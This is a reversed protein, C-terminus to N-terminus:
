PLGRQVQNRIEKIKKLVAKRDADGEHDLYSGCRKCHDKYFSLDAEAREQILEREKQLRPSAYCITDPNKLYARWIFSDEDKLRDSVLQMYLPDGKTSIYGLVFEEDDWWKSKKCEDWMLDVIAGRNPTYMWINHFQRYFYEGWVHESSRLLFKLFDKNDWDPFGDPTLWDIRGVGKIRQSLYTLVGKVAKKHDKPKQNMYATLSM